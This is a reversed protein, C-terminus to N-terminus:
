QLKYQDCLWDVDNIVKWEAARRTRSILLVIGQDYAPTPRNMMDDIIPNLSLKNVSIVIVILISTCITITLWFASQLCLRWQRSIRLWSSRTQSCKDTDQQTEGTFSLAEFLRLKANREYTCYSARSYYQQCMLCWVVNSMLANCMVTSPAAEAFFLQQEGEYAYFRRWFAGARAQSREALVSLVLAAIYTDTSFLETGERMRSILIYVYVVLCVIFISYICLLEAKM